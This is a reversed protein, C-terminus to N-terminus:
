SSESSAYSSAQYMSNLWSLTRQSTDFQLTTANRSTRLSANLVFLTGWMGVKDEVKDSRLVPLQCELSYVMLASFYDLKFQSLKGLM